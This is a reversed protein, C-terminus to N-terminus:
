ARGAEAEVKLREYEAKEVEDAFKQLREFRLFMALRSRKGIRERELM